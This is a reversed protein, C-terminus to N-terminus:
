SEAKSRAILKLPLGSEPYLLVALKPQPASQSQFTFRQSLYAAILTLETSAFHSGICIRPGTGFPLYSHRKPPLANDLFREPTFSTANTFWREDRHIAWSTIRIMAGKPITWQGIKLERLTRRAILGPAPPYLRLAEKLTASLYGLGEVDAYRPPRGQLVSDVEAQARQTAAPHEAMLWAWWSIALASTEHGALFITMCQDRIEEDSLAGGDGTEDRVSMLMNLVDDAGQDISTPPDQRLHRERRARINSRILEDLVQKAQRKAAKHPLWDPSSMPWFMEAMGVQALTAVAKIAQDRITPDTRSFLTQLIVDMTLEHAWHDFALDIVKADTFKSLATETAKCMLASYGEMRKASFGPQLIRRQRKWKEGEAVIVSQGHINEFVEIGREWRILADAHDVLVERVLDPHHIDFIKEHLVQSMVVDGFKAKLSCIHGLYDKKAQSLLDLGFASSRPGPPQTLHTRHTSMIKKSPERRAM